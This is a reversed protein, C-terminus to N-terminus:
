GRLWWCGLHRHLGFAARAPTIGNRQTQEFRLGTPPRRWADADSTGAPMIPVIDVLPRQAIADLRGLTAYAQANSMGAWHYYAALRNPDRANIADGVEFVLDRLTRACGARHTSRLAPRQPAAREQAGLDECRRDTYIVQGEATVCRRVQAQADPASAFAILLALGTCRRLSRAHM